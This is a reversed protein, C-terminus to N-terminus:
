RLAGSSARVFVRTGFGSGSFPAAGFAAVPRYHARVWAYLAPATRPDVGFAGVDFEKGERHVLVVVDPPHRELDAQMAAAGFAEIETPLFLNFRTPNVRRLWYNLIVGEPLVLLTSGPATRRELWDLTRAMVESREQWAPNPAWMADGGRAIPFDTRGYYRDAQRWWFAAFGAVLVLGLALAVRGDDGRARLWAPLVGTALVVALLTAPLALVFGYSDIRVALLVKGLLGLALLSWLALVLPARAAAPDARSHWARWAFFLTAAAALLPLGRALGRWGLDARLSLLAAAVAAAAGIAVLGPRGLRHAIREAAVCAGAFLAFAVAARLMTGLNVLPQDLGAGRRYFPDAVLAEGTHALNGLVGRWAEPAPMALSLAVGFALPLALAGAVFAAADRAARPRAFGVGAIRAVWAALAVALAPVFLELKTLFVGGLALGAAAWWGVGGRAAARELALLMAVALLLGHTQAHHYPTVYNFNHIAGYYGFAFVALLVAAAVQAALRGAGIRLLRHVGACLAALLALNAVILTTLSVGFARFLGANWYFSLPGNRQALDRYLVDGSSLRWAVYLENGFDIHVDTWRRWSWSALLGALLALAAPGAARRLEAAM